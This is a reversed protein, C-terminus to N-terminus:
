GREATVREGRAVREGMAVERSGWVVEVWPALPAAAEAVQAEAQGELEVKEVGRAEALAVEVKEAAAAVDKTIAKAVTM